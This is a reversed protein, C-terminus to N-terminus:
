KWINTPLYLQFNGPIEYFEQFCWLKKASLRKWKSTPVEIEFVFYSPSDFKMTSSWRCHPYSGFMTFHSWFLCLFYLEGSIWFLIISNIARWMNRVIEFSTFFSNKICYHRFFCFLDRICRKFYSIWNLLRRLADCFRICKFCPSSLFVFLTSANQRVVHITRPSTSFDIKSFLKSNILRQSQLKFTTLSVSIFPLIRTAQCTM